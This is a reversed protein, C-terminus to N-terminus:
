GKKESKKPDPEKWWVRHSDYLRDLIADADAETLDSAIVKEGGIKAGDDDCPAEKVVFRM